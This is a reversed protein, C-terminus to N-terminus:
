AAKSREVFNLWGSDESIELFAVHAYGDAISRAVFRIPAFYGDITLTDSQGPTLAAAGALKAGAASLDVLSVSAGSGLRGRLSVEHRTFMRRDAEATSTRVVRVLAARLDEINQTVGTVATRIDVSQRGVSDADNSVLAIREAIERAANSTEGVNRAIEQTAAGQEEIAAAVAGSVGDISSIRAGIAGVAEVAANTAARIEAVQRDIDETSRSTQNALNKVESAVVAFGKGADGARAAEITANLALLNTQRAIDGILKAVEAIKGVALSLEEIKQRANESTSVAARTEGSARSIQSSIEHIAGSLQGASSSVSQVNALAEESAAAVSQSNEGGAVARSAMEAVVRDVDRASQAITEIVSNTEREVTEAMERLAQRKLREAKTAAVTQEAKLRENEVASAKFVNVAGAMIGIEDRRDGGPISANLDGDALNRMAAAMALLPRVIQAGVVWFSFMALGLVVAAVAGSEALKAQAAGSEREIVRRALQTATGQAAIIREIATTSQAFWEPATIPYPQSANAAAFVRTRLQGFTDFYAARMDGLVSALEQPVSDRLVDLRNWALSIQGRNEGQLLFQLGSLPKGTAIVGAVGGRERGAYESMSALLGKVEFLARIEPPVEADIQRELRMRIDSSAVIVSSIAPFWDRILAEDAATAADVRGRLAGLEAIRQSLRVHEQGLSAPLGPLAKMMEGAQAFAADGSTRRQAVTQRQASTAAVPNSIITNATGREVAWDAAAALFRDAIENIAQAQALADRYEVASMARLGVFMLAVISLIATLSFVKIRLTM